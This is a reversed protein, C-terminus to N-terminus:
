PKVKSRIFKAKSDSINEFKIYELGFRIGKDVVNKRYYYNYDFEINRFESILPSAIKNLLPEEKIKNAFEKVTLSRNLDVVRKVTNEIKNLDKLIQSEIELIPNINYGETKLSGKIDDLTGDLYMYALDRSRLGAEARHQANYWESKAKIMEGNKFQFVYGEIGEINKLEKIVYDIDLTGNKEPFIKPSLYPINHENLLEKLGPDNFPIYAGTKIHRLHLFVLEKKDYPVVIVHSPDKFEFVPTFDDVLKNCFDLINKNEYAFNNADMSEKTLFNKQTKFRINGKVRHASIMSGDIKDWIAILNKFNVNDKETDPREGMNFFKHLPRGIIKGTEKDFTMGRSERVIYESFTNSDFMKYIVSLTDLGSDQIKIEPKNKIFPIIDSINEILPFTTKPIFIKNM